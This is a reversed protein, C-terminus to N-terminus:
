RPRDTLFQRDRRPQHRGVMEPHHSVKENGKGSGRIGDANAWIDIFDVKDKHVGIPFMLESPVVGGVIYDTWTKAGKGPVKEKLKKATADIAM